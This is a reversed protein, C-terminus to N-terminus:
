FQSVKNKLAEIDTDSFAKVYDIAQAVVTRHSEPNRYLKTEILLIDANETIILIDIPGRSTCFERIILASNSPPLELSPISLIIQPNKALLGQPSISDSGENKFRYEKLETSNSTQTNIKFVPM